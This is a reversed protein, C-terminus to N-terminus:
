DEMRRIQEAPVKRGVAVLRVPYLQDGRDACVLVSGDPQTDGWCQDTVRADLVVETYYKRLYRVQEDFRSDFGISVFSTDAPDPVEDDHLARAYDLSGVIACSRGGCPVLWGHVRVVQGTLRAHKAELEQVSLSEGGTSVCALLGVGPLIGFWGRM